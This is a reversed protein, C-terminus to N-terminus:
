IKNIKAKFQSNCRPKRIKQCTITRFSTESITYFQTRFIRELIEKLSRRFRRESTSKEPVFNPKRPTLFLPPPSILFKRLCLCLFYYLPCKFKLTWRKKVQLYVTWEIMGLRQFKLTACFSPKRAELFSVDSSLIV